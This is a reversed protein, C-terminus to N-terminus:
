DIVRKKDAGHLPSDKREKPKKDKLTKRLLADERSKLTEEVIEEQLLDDLADLDDVYKGTLKITPM